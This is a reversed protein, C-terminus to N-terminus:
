SQFNRAFTIVFDTGSDIVSECEIKGCLCDTVLNAVIALGLGLHGAVQNTSFFPDFIQSKVAKSFGIGNDSVKVFVDESQTVEGLTITIIPERDSGKPFAHDIANRILRTIIENLVVCLTTVPMPAKAIIELRIFRAKLESHLVQCVHRVEEALDSKTASDSYQTVSVSKFVQILEAVRNLSVNLSEIGERGGNIFEDLYQKTLKGNEYRGSFDVLKEQLWSGLTVSIGLPTNVEHAVGRVLTGVTRIREESLLSENLSSQNLRLARRIKIERDCVLSLAAQIQLILEQLQPKLQILLIGIWADSAVIPLVMHDSRALNAFWSDPALLTPLFRSERCAGAIKPLSASVIYMGDADPGNVDTGVVETNNVFHDSLAFEPQVSLCFSEIGVAPLANELLDSLEKLDSCLMLKRGLQTRRQEELPNTASPIRLKQIANFFLQAQIQDVRQRSALDPAPQMGDMAKCADFALDAYNQGQQLLEDSIAFDADASFLLSDLAGKLAPDITWGAEPCGCSARVRLQSSLETVAAPCQGVWLEDLCKFAAEVQAEIPQNVSTLPPDYYRNQPNDDFGVVSVDQPVRIGAQRLAKIVQYAMLDSAAVVADFPQDTKWRAVLKDLEAVTIYDGAFILDPNVELGHSRLTQSWASFRIRADESNTPGCVFAQQRRGHVHVLHNVLDCMGGFNDIVVSPLEPLTEAISIMPIGRFEESFVPIRAADMYYKIGPNLILGDLRHPNVLRFVATQVSQELFDSADQPGTFVVLDIGRREACVLAARWLRNTYLGEWGLHNVLFGVRKRRINM